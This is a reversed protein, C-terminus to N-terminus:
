SFDYCNQSKGAFLFHNSDARFDLCFCDSDKLNLRIRGSDSEANITRVVVGNTLGAALKAGDSSIKSCLLHSNEYEFKIFDSPSTAKLLCENGVLELKCIYLTSKQRNSEISNISFVLRNHGDCYIPLSSKTNIAEWSHEFLFRMPKLGQENAKLGICVEFIAAYKESERKYTALLLTKEATEITSIKYFSSESLRDNLRYKYRGLSNLKAYQLQLDSFSEQNLGSVERSFLNDILARERSKIQVKVSKDVECRKERNKISESTPVNTQGFSNNQIKFYRKKEADYYFGPLEPAASDNKPKKNQHSSM